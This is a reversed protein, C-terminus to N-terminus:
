VLQQMMQIKQFNLKARAEIETMFQVATQVCWRACGASMCKESLFDNGEPLFPSLAFGQSRLSAALTEVDPQYPTPKFHILMHRFGILAEAAVLRNDRADLLPAKSYDLVKQYKKMTSSREIGKVVKGTDGTSGWFTLEFDPILSRLRTNLFLENVNAEMSAAASVVCASAYARIEEFFPGIERGSNEKELRTVHDRFMTAAKFHQWAFNFTVTGTASLSTVGFMGTGAEM